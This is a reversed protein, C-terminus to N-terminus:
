SSFLLFIDFLHGPRGVALLQDTDAVEFNWDLSQLEESGSCKILRLAIKKVTEVRQSFTLKKMLIDIFVHRFIVDDSYLLIVPDDQPLFTLKKRM